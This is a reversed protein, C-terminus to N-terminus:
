PGDPSPACCLAAFDPGAGLLLACCASVTLFGGQVGFCVKGRSGGGAWGGGAAAEEDEERWEELLQQLEVVFDEDDAECSPLVFFIVVVLDEWWSSGQGMRWGSGMRWGGGAWGGGCMWVGAGVWGRAWGGSDEKDSDFLLGGGPLGRAGPGLTGEGEMGRLSDLFRQYEAEDNLHGLGELEDDVQCHLPPPQPASTLSPM